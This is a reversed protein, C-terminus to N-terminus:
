DAHVQTQLVAAAVAASQLQALVTRSYDRDTLM